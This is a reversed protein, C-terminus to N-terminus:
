PADVDEPLSSRSGSSETSLRRSLRGQLFAVGVLTTAGGLLHRARLPENLLGVGVLFAVIPVLLTVASANAPGVSAINQFNIIWALGTGVVGLVVLAALNSTTPRKSSDLTSWVAMPMLMASALLLQGFAITVPSADAVKRRAYNFGVGYSLTSVLMLIVGLGVGGRVDKGGLGAAIVVGVFGMILGAVQQRRLRDHIAVAAILATFFPTTANLVSALTSSIHTQAVSQTAFPIANSVAALVVLHGWFRVDRPMPRKGFYLVAGLTLAGLASRGFALSWPTFGPLSKKVLFFSWGWVFGLLWVKRM